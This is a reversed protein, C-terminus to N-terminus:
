PNMLVYYAFGGLVCVNLLALVLIIIWQRTTMGWLKRTGDASTKSALSAPANTFPRLVNFVQQVDTEDMVPELELIDQQIFQDVEGPRVTAIATNETYATINPQTLIFVPNVWPVPLDKSHLYEYVAGANDRAAVIPSHEVAVYDGAAEDYRLWDDGQAKYEGEAHIFEISWVGNPGFLLLDADPGDELLQLNVFLIYDDDLLNAFTDIIADETQFQEQWNPGLDRAAEKKLDARPKGEATRYPSCHFIQM